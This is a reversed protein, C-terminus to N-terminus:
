LSWFIQNQQLCYQIHNAEFVSALNM